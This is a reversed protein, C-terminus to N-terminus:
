GAGAALRTLTSASIQRSGFGGVRVEEVDAGNRVATFHPEPTEDQVLRLAPQHDVAPRCLETRTREINEGSQNVVALAHHALALQEVDHPGALHDLVAVDMNVDRRKALQQTGVHNRRHGASAIPEDMGELSSPAHSVGDGRRGLRCRQLAVQL